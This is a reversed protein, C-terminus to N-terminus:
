NQNYVLFLGLGKILSPTATRTNRQDQQGPAPHRPTGRPVATIKAAGCRWRWGAGTQALAHPQQAHSAGGSTVVKLSRSPRAWGLSGM